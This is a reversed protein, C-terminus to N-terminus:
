LNFESKNLWFLYKEFVIDLSLESLDHVCEWIKMVRLNKKVIKKAENIWILLYFM